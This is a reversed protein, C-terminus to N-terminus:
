HKYSFCDSSPKDQTIKKLGPQRTYKGTSEDNMACAWTLCITLLAKHFRTGVWRWCLCVCVLVHIIISASLWLLCLLKSMQRDYIMVGMTDTFAALCKRSKSDSDCRSNRLHDNMTWLETYNFVSKYRLVFVTAKKLATPSKFPFSIVNYITIHALNDWLWMFKIRVTTLMEAPTVPHEKNTIKPIRSMQSPVNWCKASSLIKEYM